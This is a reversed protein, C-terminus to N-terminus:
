ISRKKKIIERILSNKSLEYFENKSLKNLNNNLILLYKKENEVDTNTIIEDGIKSIIIIEQSKLFNCLLFSLIFFILLKKILM